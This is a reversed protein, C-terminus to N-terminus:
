GILALQVPGGRNGRISNCIFHALRVNARVDDGGDAIPLVHDITPAGNHPVVLDMRVKRRCIGCKFHDRAAIEELTYDEHAVQRERAKRRKRGRRMAERAVIPRCEGCYTTPGHKGSRLPKRGGCRKCTDVQEPTRGARALDRRRQAKRFCEPKCYKRRGAFSEGCEACSRTPPTPPRSPLRGCEDSCYKRRRVDAIPRACRQCRRAALEAARAVRDPRRANARAERARLHRLKCEECVPSRRALTPRKCDRCATPPRSKRREARCAHCTARGEPLSGKGVNLQRGCTGACLVTRRPM